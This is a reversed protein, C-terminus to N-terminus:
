LGAQVTKRGKLLGVGKDLLIVLATIAGLQALTGFIGLVGEMSAGAGGREGGDFGAPRQVGAFDAPPQQGNQFNSGTNTSAGANLGLYLGGAILSGVLLIAIIKVTTTLIIKM